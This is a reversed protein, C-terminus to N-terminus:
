FEVNRYIRELAIEIGISAFNIKADVGEATSEKWLRPEIQCMSLVEPIDQRVLVYEKFSPINKYSMFKDNRDYKETSPSLVEVILIPNTLVDKRGSWFEPKQYVVLADPYLIHNLKPIYIKQDSSIVELPLNNSEIMQGLAVIINAAIKNHNYSLAPIKRIKGNYYEHKESSRREKDLYKDISLFGATKRKPTNIVEM